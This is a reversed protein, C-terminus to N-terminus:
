APHRSPVPRGSRDGGIPLSLRDRAARAAILALIM